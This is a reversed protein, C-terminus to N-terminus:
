SGRAEEHWAEPRYGARIARLNQATVSELMRDVRSDPPAKKDRLARRVLPHEDFNPAVLFMTVVYSAIGSESTLGYGRARAVGARILGRLTAEDLRGLVTTRAPLRVAAGPHKEGLHGALRREFSEDAAPKFADFQEQRIVLM